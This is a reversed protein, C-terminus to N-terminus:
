YFLFIITFLQGMVQCVDRHRDPMPMNAIAKINTTFFYVGYFCQSETKNNTEPTIGYPATQGSLSFM